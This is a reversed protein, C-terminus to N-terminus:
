KGISLLRQLVAIEDRLGLEFRLHLRVHRKFRVATHDIMAAIRCNGIPRRLAVDGKAFIQRALELQPGILDLEVAFVHATSEPRFETAVRFALQGSLHALLKPSWAAGDARALLLM